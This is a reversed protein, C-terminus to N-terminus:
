LKRTSVILTKNMEYPASQNKRLAITGDIQVRSIPVDILRERYRGILMRHYFDAMCRAGAHVAQRFCILTLYGVAQRVIRRV